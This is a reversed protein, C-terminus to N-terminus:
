RSAGLISVFPLSVTAMRGVMSDMDAVEVQYSRIGLERAEDSVPEHIEYGEDRKPLVIVSGRNRDRAIRAAVRMQMKRRYAYTTRSAGFSEGDDDKLRESPRTLKGHAGIELSTSSEM